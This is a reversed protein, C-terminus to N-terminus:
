LMTLRSSPGCTNQFIKVSNGAEFGGQASQRIREVEDLVQKALRTTVHWAKAAGFKAKSLERYYNNIFTIFGEIWDMSEALALHCISFGQGTEYSSFYEELYSLVISTMLTQWNKRCVFGIARAQITGSSSYSGILDLFLGDSTVVKHRHSRSFFKPIKSDFSTITIGNAITTVKIKYLKQLHALANTNDM